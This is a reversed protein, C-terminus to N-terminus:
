ISDFLMSHLFRQFTQLIPRHRYSKPCQLLVNNLRLNTLLNILLNYKKPSNDVLETLLGQFGLQDKRSLGTYEKDLLKSFVPDPYGIM